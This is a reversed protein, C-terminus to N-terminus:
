MYISQGYNYSRDTLKHIIISSTDIHICVQLFLIYLSIHKSRIARTM